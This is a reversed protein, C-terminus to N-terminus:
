ESILIKGNFIVIFDPLLDADDFMDAWNEGGCIISIEIM